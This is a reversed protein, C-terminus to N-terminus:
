KLNWAHGGRNQTTTTLHDRLQWKLGADLAERMQQRTVNLKKAMMDSVESSYLRFCLDQMGQIEDRTARRNDEPFRLERIIRCFEVIRMNPSLLGKDRHASSSQLDSM